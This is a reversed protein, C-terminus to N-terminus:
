YDDALVYTTKLDSTGDFDTLKAVIQFSFAFNTFVYFIMFNNITSGSNSLETVERTLYPIAEFFTSNLYCDAIIPDVQNTFDDIQQSLTDAGFIYVLGLAVYFLSTIIIMLKYLIVQWSKWFVNVM